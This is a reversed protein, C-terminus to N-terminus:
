RRVQWSESTPSTLKYCRVLWWRSVAVITWTAALVFDCVIGTVKERGEAESSCCPRRRRRRGHRCAGVPATLPSFPDDDEEAFCFHCYVLRMTGDPRREIDFSELMKDVRCLLASKKRRGRKEESSGLALDNDEFLRCAGRDGFLAEFLAAAHSVLSDPRKCFRVRCKARVHNM